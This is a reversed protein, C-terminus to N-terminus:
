RILLQHLRAADIATPGCRLEHIDIVGGDGCVGILSQQQV